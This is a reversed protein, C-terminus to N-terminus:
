NIQNNDQDAESFCDVFFQDMEEEYKRILRLLIAKLKKEHDEFHKFEQYNKPRVALGDDDVVGILSNEEFGGSRPDLRMLPKYKSNLGSKYQESYKDSYDNIVDKFAKFIFEINPKLNKASIPYDLIPVENGLDKLSAWFEAPCQHHQEKLCECCCIKADNLQCNICIMSRLKKHKYCQSVLQRVNNATAIQEELMYIRPFFKEYTLPINPDEQPKQCKYPCVFQKKLDPFQESMKKACVVCIIHGCFPIMRPSRGPHTYPEHCIPCNIDM